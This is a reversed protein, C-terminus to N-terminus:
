FFKVRKAHTLIRLAGRGWRFIRDGSRSRFAKKAFNHDGGDGKGTNREDTRALVIVFLNSKKEIECWGVRIVFFYSSSFVLGKM